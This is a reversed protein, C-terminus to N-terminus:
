KTGVKGSPKTIYCQKYCSLCGAIGHSNCKKFTLDGKKGCNRCQGNNAKVDILTCPTKSEM